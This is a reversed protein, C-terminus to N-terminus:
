LSAAHSEKRPGVGLQTQGSRERGPFPRRPPGVDVSDSEDSTEGDRDLEREVFAVFEARRQELREIQAELDEIRDNAEQSLRETRARAERDVEAALAEARQRAEQEIEDAEAIAEEKMRQAEDRVEDAEARIRDSEARAEELLREAEESAEQLVRASEESVADMAQRRNSEVTVMADQLAQGREEHDVITAKLEIIQNTLRGNEATVVELQRCVHRVFADVAGSDYGRLRRPFRATAVPRDPVPPTAM